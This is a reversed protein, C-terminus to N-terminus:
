NLCRLVVKPVDQISNLLWSFLYFRKTLKCQLMLYIIIVKRDAITFPSIITLILGISTLLKMKIGSYVFVIFFIHFIFVLSINFVLLSCNYYYKLELKLKSSLLCLIYWILRSLRGKTEITRNIITNHNHKSIWNYGDNSLSLPFRIRANWTQVFTNHYFSIWRPGWIIVLALICCLLLIFM